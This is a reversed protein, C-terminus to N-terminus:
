KSCKEFLFLLALIKFSSRFIMDKSDSFDSFKASKQIFIKIIHNKLGPESKLVEFISRKILAYCNTVKDRRELNKIEFRRPNLQVTNNHYSVHFISLITKTFFYLIM